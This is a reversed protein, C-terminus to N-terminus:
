SWDENHMKKGVFTGRLWIGYGLNHRMSHQVQRWVVCLAYAKVFTRGKLASSIMRAKRNWFKSKQNRWSILNNKSKRKNTNSCMKINRKRHMWVSMWHEADIAAIHKRAPPKGAAKSVKGKVKTDPTLADGHLFSHRYWPCCIADETNDHEPKRATAM